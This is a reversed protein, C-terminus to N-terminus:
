EIFPLFTAYSGVKQPIKCLSEESFPLNTHPLALNVGFSNSYHHNKVLPLFKRTISISM